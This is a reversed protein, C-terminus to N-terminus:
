RLGLESQIRRCSEDLDATVLSYGLTGSAISAVADLGAAPHALANLCHVYLRAATEASSIPILQPVRADQEHRVFFIRALRTRAPVDRHGLAAIPVHISRELTRAQPPLRPGPPARKLGLARPYPEVMSGDPDIPALEDSLVQLGLRSLGWATTSKGSGSDGALVIAEPGHRLVAAHVFLLDPRRHQAAVVLEKDLVYVVDSLTPCEITAGSDGSVRFGDEQRTATLTLDPRDSFNALFAGFVDQLVDAIEADPTSLAARRNLVDLRLEFL